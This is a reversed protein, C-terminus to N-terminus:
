WSRFRGYNRAPGIGSVQRVRRNAIGAGTSNLGLDEIDSYPDNLTDGLNDVQQTSSRGANSMLAMNERALRAALEPDFGGLVLMAAEALDPSHGLIKKVEAKSAIEVQGNGSNSRQTIASLEQMLDPTMGSIVHARVRDALGIFREAKINACDIDGHFKPAGNVYIPEVRYGQERLPRMWGKGMGVADLYIMSIANKYPKLFEITADQNNGAEIRQVRIIANKAAIIVGTADGGSGESSKIGVCYNKQRPDASAPRYCAELDAIAFLADSSFDAFNGMVRQEFLARKGPVLVWNLYADRVFRRSTLM